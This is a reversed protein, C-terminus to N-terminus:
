NQQLLAIYDTLQKIWLGLQAIAEKPPEDQAELTTLQAQYMMLYSNAMRECVGAIKYKKAGRIHDLMGRPQNIMRQVQDRDDICFGPAKTYFDSLPNDYGYFDMLDLDRDLPTLLMRQPNNVMRSDAEEFQQKESSWDGSDELQWWGRARRTDNWPYGMTHYQWVSDLLTHESRMVMNGMAPLFPYRLSVAGAGIGVGESMENVRNDRVDLRGNGAVFTPGKIWGQAIQSTNWVPDVQGIRNGGLVLLSASKPWFNAPRPDNDASWLPRHRWMALRASTAARIKWTAAHAFNIILAMLMLLLPLTIVLELPALGARSVPWRVSRAPHPDSRTVRQRM